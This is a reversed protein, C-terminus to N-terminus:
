FRLIYKFVGIASAGSDDPTAKITLRAYRAQVPNDLPVIQEHPIGKEAVFNFYPLSNTVEIKVSEARRFTKGDITGDDPTM